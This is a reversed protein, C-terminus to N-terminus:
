SIFGVEKVFGSIHLWLIDHDTRRVLFVFDATHYVAAYLLLIEIAAEFM